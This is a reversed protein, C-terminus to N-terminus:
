CQKVIGAIIQYLIQKQTKSLSNKLVECKIPPLKIHCFSAVNAAFPRLEPIVNGVRVVLGAAPEVGIQLRDANLKGRASVSFHFHAGAAYFRALNDLGRLTRQYSYKGNLQWAGWLTETGPKENQRRNANAL